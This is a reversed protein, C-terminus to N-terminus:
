LGGEQDPSASETEQDPSSSGGSAGAGGGGNGQDPCDRDDSSLDTRDSSTGAGTTGVVDDGGAVTAWGTEVPAGATATAYSVGAGALLVLAGAAVPPGVRRWMASSSTPSTMNPKGENIM